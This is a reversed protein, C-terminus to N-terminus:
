GSGLYLLLGVVILILVVKVWTQLSFWMNIVHTYLTGWPVFKKPNLKKLMKWLNGVVKWKM